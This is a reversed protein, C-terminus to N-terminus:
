NRMQLIPAIISGKYTKCMLVTYGKPCLSMNRCGKCLPAGFNTLVRPALKHVNPQPSPQKLLLRTAVFVVGLKYIISASQMQQRRKMLVSAHAVSVVSGLM